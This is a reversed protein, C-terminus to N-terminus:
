DPNECHANIISLATQKHQEREEDTIYRFEGDDGRMRIRPATELTELNQRAQRCREPDKPPRPQLGPASAVATEGSDAAPAAPTVAASGVSRSSTTRTSVVEYPTGAPPPRDSHVPDGREDLWRYYKDEARLGAGGTALVLLILAVPWHATHKVM